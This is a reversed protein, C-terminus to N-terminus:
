VNRILPPGACAQRITPLGVTESEHGVKKSSRSPAAAEQGPPAELCGGGGGGGGYLCVRQWSLPFSELSSEQFGLILPEPANIQWDSKSIM